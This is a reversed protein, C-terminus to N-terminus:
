MLFIQKVKRMGIDEFCEKLKKMDIKNKGGVNIGRLLPRQMKYPITCKM